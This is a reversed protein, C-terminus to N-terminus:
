RGIEPVRFETRTATAFGVTDTAVGSSARRWREVTLQRNRIPYALRVRFIALYRAVCNSDKRFGQLEKSIAFSEPYPKSREGTLRAVQIVQGAPVVRSAAAAKVPTGRLFDRAFKDM